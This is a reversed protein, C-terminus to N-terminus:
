LKFSVGLAWFGATGEKNTAIGIKIYAGTKPTFFYRVAAFAKAGFVTRGENGFGLFLSPGAGAFVNLGQVKVNFHYEIDPFLSLGGPSVIYLSADGGIAIEKSLFYEVNPGLAYKGSTGTKVSMLQPSLYFDGPKFAVEPAEASFASSAVVALLLVLCPMKKQIM